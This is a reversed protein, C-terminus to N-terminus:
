KRVHKGWNAKMEQKQKMRTKLPKKEEKWM